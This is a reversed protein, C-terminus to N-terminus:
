ALMMEKLADLFGALAVTDHTEGPYFRTSLGAGLAALAPGWDTEISRAKNLHLENGTRPASAFGIFIRSGQLARDPMRALARVGNGLTSGRDWWLSPDIAIFDQFVRPREATLASLTFLGGLSHGLLARRAPKLGDPLTSEAAPVLERALYELFRSAGGGRVRAGPASQGDRGASSATPTLDRFRTELGGTDIGAVFAAARARLKGGSLYDCFAAVPAFLREADLVYYAAVPAGACAAAAAEASFHVRLRRPEALIESDLRRLEGLRLESVPGSAEPSASASLPVAGAALGKLLTRRSIGSSNKEQTM